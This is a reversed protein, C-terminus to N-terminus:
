FQPSAFMLTPVTTVNPSGIMNGAYESERYKTCQLPLSSSPYYNLVAFRIPKHLEAHFIRLFLSKDTLTQYLTVPFM